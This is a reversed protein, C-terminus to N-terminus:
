SDDIRLKENLKASKTSKAKRNFNSSISYAYNIHISM